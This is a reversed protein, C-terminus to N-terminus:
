AARGADALNMRAKKMSRPRRSSKVTSTSRVGAKQRVHPQKASPSGGRMSLSRPRSYIKAEFVFRPKIRRVEPCGGPSPSGPIHDVFCPDRPSDPSPVGEYPKVREARVRCSVECAGFFSLSGSARSFAAAHAPFRFGSAAESRVGGRESRPDFVPRRHHTQPREAKRPKRAKGSGTLNRVPNLRLAACDRWGVEAAVRSSASPESPRHPRGVTDLPNAKFALTTSRTFAPTTSAM